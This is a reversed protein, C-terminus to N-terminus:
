CDIYLVGVAGVQSEHTKGDKPSFNLLGRFHGNDVANDVGNYVFILCSTGMIWAM